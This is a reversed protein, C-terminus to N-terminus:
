TPHQYVFSVFSAVILNTWWVVLMSEDWCCLQEVVPYFVPENNQPFVMQSCWGTDPFFLMYACPHHPQHTCRPAKCQVIILVRYCYSYHINYYVHQIAIAMNYNRIRNWDIFYKTAIFYETRWVFHFIFNMNLTIQCDFKSLQVLKAGLIFRQNSRFWNISQLRVTM